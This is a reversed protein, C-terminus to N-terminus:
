YPVAATMWLSSNYSARSWILFSACVAQNHVMAPWSYLNSAYLNSSLRLWPVLMSAILRCGHGSFKFNDYDFLHFINSKSGTSFNDFCHVTAKVNVLAECIWSGLFGAGGVVAVTRGKYDHEIRKELNFTLREAAKM